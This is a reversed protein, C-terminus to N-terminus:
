LIDSKGTKGPNGLKSICNEWSRHLSSSHNIFVYLHLNLWHPPMLFMMFLILVIFKLASRDGNDGPHGGGHQWISSRQDETHPASIETHGSGRAGIVSCIHLCWYLLCPHHPPPLHLTWHPAFRVFEKWTWSGLSAVPVRPGQAFCVLNEPKPFTLM